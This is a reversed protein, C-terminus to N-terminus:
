VTHHQIEYNKIIAMVRDFTEKVRNREPEMDESVIIESESFSPPAQVHASKLIIQCSFFTRGQNLTWVHLDDIRDVERIEMIRQRLQDVNVSRPTFEMLIRLISILVPLTTLFVLFNTVFIMIPFAFRSGTAGDDVEILILSGLNQIVQALMHVATARINIDAAHGIRSVCLPIHGLIVMNVLGVCSGISSTLLTIPALIM